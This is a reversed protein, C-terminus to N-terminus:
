IRLSTLLTYSSANKNSKQLDSSSLDLQTASTFVLHVLDIRTNQKSETDFGECMSNALLIKQMNELALRYTALQYSKHKYIYLYIGVCM